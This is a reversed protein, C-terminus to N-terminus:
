EGVTKHVQLTIIFRQIQKPHSFEINTGSCYYFVKDALRYSKCRWTEFFVNLIFEFVTWYNSTANWRINMLDLTCFYDGRSNADIFNMLERTWLFSTVNAIGRAKKQLDFLKRTVRTIIECRIRERKRSCRQSRRM